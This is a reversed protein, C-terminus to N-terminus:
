PALFYNPFPIYWTKSHTIGDYKEISHCKGKCLFLNQFDINGHILCLTLCYYFYYYYM